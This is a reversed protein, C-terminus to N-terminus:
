GAWDALFAARKAAFREWDELEHRYRLTSPEDSRAKYDIPRKPGVRLEDPVGPEYAWFGLPVDGDEAEAFLQDRADLYLEALDRNSPHGYELQWRDIGDLVIRRDKGRRQRVRPM